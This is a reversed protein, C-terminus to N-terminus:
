SRESVLQTEEARAPLGAIKESTTRYWEALDFCADAFASQPALDLVNTEQLLAQEVLESEPIHFPLLRPGLQAALRNRMAVHTPSAESFRNLIFWPEIKLGARRSREEIAQLISPVAVVSRLEPTLIMLCVGGNWTRKEVAPAFWETGAVLIRDVHGRLGATARCFRTSYSQSGCPADAHTRLVHVGGEFQSLPDTSLLLSTKQSGSNYFCDLTSPGRADVLLVREGLISLARGLGALLTTAGCGGVGSVLPLLPPDTSRTHVAALASLNNALEPPATIRAVDQSEASVAQALGSVPNAPISPAAAAFLQPMSAASTESAESGSGASAALAMPAPTPEPAAKPKSQIGFEFTQYTSPDLLVTRCLELVDDHSEAQPM